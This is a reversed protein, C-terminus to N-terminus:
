GAAAMLGRRWIRGLASERVNGLRLRPASRDYVDGRADVWAVGDPEPSPRLAAHLRHDTTGVRLERRWRELHRALRPRLARFADAAPELSAAHERGRGAPVFRLLEVSECELHIALEIVEPVQEVNTATVVMNLGTPVGADRLLRLARVAGVFSGARQRIQDHVSETAADVSVVVQRLGAAALRGALDASVLTGNTVVSTAVGGGALLELVPPTADRMFPEGGGVLVSGVRDHVLRRAFALAEDDSLEGPAPMGSAAYCHLCGLNCTNTLDWHVAIPSPRPDSSSLRELLQERV